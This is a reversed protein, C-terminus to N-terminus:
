DRADVYVIREIYATVYAEQTYVNDGRINIDFDTELRSQVVGERMTIHRRLAYAVTNPLYRGTAPDQAKVLKQLKRETLEVEDDAAGIDDLKNVALTIKITETVNDTGVAGSDIRGQKESIMICPLQHLGLEEPEGLFYAVFYDGFTEKLVERIRQPGDKYLQEDEV